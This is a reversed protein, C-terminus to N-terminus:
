KVWSVFVGLSAVYSLLDPVPRFWEGRIKHERFRRKDLTERHMNGYYWTVLILEDASGCQLEKLREEAQKTTYGIKIAGSSANKIFYVKADPHSNRSRAKADKRERARRLAAERFEPDTAYKANQSAKVKDSYREAYNIAKVALQCERCRNYAQYRPRERKCLSCTYTVSIM